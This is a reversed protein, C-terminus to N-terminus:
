RAVSSSDAPPPSPANVLEDFVIPAHLAPRVPARWPAAPWFALAGLGVVVLFGLFAASGLSLSSSPNRANSADSLPDPESM